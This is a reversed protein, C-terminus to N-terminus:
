HSFSFHTPMWHIKESKCENWLLRFMCRYRRDWNAEGGGGGGRCALLSTIIDLNIALPTLM